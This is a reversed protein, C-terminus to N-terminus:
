KVKLQAQYDKYSLNGHKDYIFAEIDYIGKEKMNMSLIDNEVEFLLERTKGDNNKRYVKWRKLFSSNKTLSTKYVINDNVNITLPINHAFLSSDINNWYEFANVKDFETFIFSHTADVFDYIRNKNLGIIIDEKNKEKQSNNKIVYNIYKQNAKSIYLNTTIQNLIKNKNTKIKENTKEEQKIFLPELENEKNKIFVYEDVYKKYNFIGNLRIRKEKKNTEIVKFTAGSYYINTSENDNIADGGVQYLLKVIDGINFLNKNEKEDIYVDTYNNEVNFIVSRVKYETIPFIYFEYRNSKYQDLNVDNEFEISYFKSQSIKKIKGKCEYIGNLYEKDYIIFQVDDNVNIINSFKNIAMFDYLRNSSHNYYIVRDHINMLNIYDNKDSMDFYYSLNPYKMINKETDINLNYIHQSWRLKPFLESKIKEVNESNSSSDFFTNDNNIISSDVYSTLLPNEIIVDCGSKVEKAFVNGYDNICYAIINYHGIKNVNLNFYPEYIAISSDNNYNKDIIFTDNYQFDVKINKELLNYDYNFIISSIINDNEKNIIKGKNIELIYKQNDDFFIKNIALGNKYLCLQYGKFSFITADIDEKYSYEFSSKENIPLLTICFNSAEYEENKQNKIIYSYNDNKFVKYEINNWWEKYTKDKVSSYLRINADELQIIPMKTFIANKLAGTNDKGLLIENNAIHLFADDKINQNIITNECEVNAKVQLNNLFPYAITGNSNNIFEGITEDFDDFSIYSNETNNLISVKINASGDVLEEIKNKVIPTFNLYEEHELNQMMTGYIRYDQREYVVGEGTIEIIRCNLALINRELWEKLSKIKILVEDVSYNYVNRLIPINYEDFNNTEENIKYVLTLKNLKKQAMRNELVNDYTLYPNYDNFKENINLRKSYQIGKKIDKYWERFYVDDYGLYKIANILAKYTGVYPFIEDYTLFLEKSKRNVIEWNIKEEKIDCEKFLTPYMIPDPIGFNAFLSRFREDEGETEVTVNFEGIKLVDEDNERNKLMVYIKQEHVGEENSSFCINIQPNSTLINDINVVNNFENSTIDFYDDDLTNNDSLDIEINHKKYIEETTSDITFFQIDDDKVDTIFVINYKEDYPKKLKGDEEIGFYLTEVSHLNTSVKEMDIDANFILSPYPLEYNNGFLTNLEEKLIVCEFEIESIGYKTYEKLDANSSTYAINFPLVNKVEFKTITTKELCIGDVYIDVNADKLKINEFSFGKGVDLIKVDNIIFNGNIDKERSYVGNLITADKESGYKSYIKIVINSAIILPIEYGNKDFFKLNQYMSKYNDNAM